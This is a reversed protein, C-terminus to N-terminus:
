FTVLLFYDAKNSFMYKASWEDSEDFDIQIHNISSKFFSNNREEAGPNKKRKRKRRDVSSPCMSLRQSAPGTAHLGQVLEFRIRIPAVIGAFLYVTYPNYV